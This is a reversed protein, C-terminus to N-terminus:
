EMSEDVIQESTATMEDGLISFEPSDSEWMDDEKMDRGRGRAPM